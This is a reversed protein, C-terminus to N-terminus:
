TNRKLYKTQFEGTGYLGVGLWLRSLAEPEILNADEGATCTVVGSIRLNMITNPLYYGRNWLLHYLDRAIRNTTTGIRIGPKRGDQLHIRYTVADGHGDKVLMVKHGHLAHAGELLLQQVEDVGERGDLLDPDVFGAPDIDGPLGIEIHVWQNLWHCWRKREDRFTWHGPPDYISDSPLRKLSDAARTVAVYAVNAEEEIAAADHNNDDGGACSHDDNPGTLESQDSRPRSELLTVEDFEMGKSQHITTIILGDDDTHQDDPFADPWALRDRLDGINLSTAGDSGGSARVLRLWAIDPAPLTLATRTAEDWAGALKEYIRPFGSKQVIPSKLTRFLAGVWPPALHTHGAARLRVPTPTGGVVETGLLERLVRLAEGNTRTLIARTGSAIQLWSRDLDAPAELSNLQARVAELKETESRESRLIDRIGSSFAAIKSTARFNHTLRLTQLDSAWNRTIHDWYQQPTATDQEALRGAFGFIAQAPDGLVTFGAGPKGPPALLNMLAIVLDGRVGPLDQFEDVIICRKDGILSKIEARRPGEILAILAAINADYGNALLSRADRGSLRLIRFAWSDFTRIAVHRLNELVDPDLTRLRRTLTRVASRSFSLVLIQGADVRGNALSALRRAALETKGAGPPAEVLM